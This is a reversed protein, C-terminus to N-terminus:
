KTMRHGVRKRVCLAMEVCFKMLSVQLCLGFFLFGFVLFYMQFTTPPIKSGREMTGPISLLILNFGLGISLYVLSNLIKNNFFVKTYKKTQNENLENFQTTAIPFFICFFLAYVMSFICIPFLTAVFAAKISYMRIAFDHDSELVLNVFGQHNIDEILFMVFRDLFLFDVVHPFYLVSTTAFMYLVLFVGTPAVAILGHLRTPTELAEQLSKRGTKTDGERFDLNETM